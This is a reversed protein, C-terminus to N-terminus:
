SDSVNAQGDQNSRISKSLSNDATFVIFIKEDNKKIKIRTLVCYLLLLMYEGIYFLHSKLSSERILNVTLFVEHLLKQM